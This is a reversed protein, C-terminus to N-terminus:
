SLLRVDSEPEFSDLLKSGNEFYFSFTRCHSKHGVLGPRRKLRLGGRVENVSAEWLM